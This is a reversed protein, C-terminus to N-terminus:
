GAAAQCDSCWWACEDMYERIVVLDWESAPKSKRCKCCVASLGAEKRGERLGKQVGREYAADLDPGKEAIWQRALAAMSLGTGVLLAKLADSDDRSLRFSHNPHTKAYKIRSPPLRRPISNPM